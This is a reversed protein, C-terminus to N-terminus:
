LQIFWNSSVTVHNNGPTAAATGACRRQQESPPSQRPGPSGLTSRAAIGALPREGRRSLSACRTANWSRERGEEQQSQGWGGDERRVPWKDSQRSQSGSAAPPRSSVTVPRPAVGCAARLPVSALAEAALTGSLPARSCDRRARSFFGYILRWHSPSLDGTSLLTRNLGNQM